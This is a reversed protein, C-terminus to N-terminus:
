EGDMEKLYYQYKIQNTQYLIDITIEFLSKPLLDGNFQDNSILFPRIPM